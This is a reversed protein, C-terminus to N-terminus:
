PRVRAKFAFTTEEDLSSDSLLESSGSSMPFSSAISTFFNWFNVLFFPKMFDERDLELFIVVLHLKQEHSCSSFMGCTCSVQDSCRQTDATPYHSCSSSSSSSCPIHNQRCSSSSISLTKKWTKMLTKMVCSSSMWCPEHTQQCPSLNLPPTQM